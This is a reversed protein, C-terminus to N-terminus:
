AANRVCRGSAIPVAPVIELGANMVADRFRPDCLRDFEAARRHLQGDSLTGDRGVLTVDFHGPHCTLELFQETLGNTHDIWRMLFNPCSVCPPDTVGLLLDAGPLGADSQRVAARRGYHSLMLRKVRAGPVKLLTRNSEVVRRVFPKPTQASLLERLIRGIPEFVHLHHHANVNMPPTGVMAMFRWYQRHLEIRVHEPDISGCLLKKLFTGIPFFTGDSEVLSPVESPLSVPRDLTLTPHWGLELPRGRRIWYAVADSAFPSNVLLVTSSIIGQEALDLIGRSTEPGIGFDDATILLRRAPPPPM